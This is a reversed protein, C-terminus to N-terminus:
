KWAFIISVWGTDEYNKRKIIRGTCLKLLIFKDINGNETLKQLCEGNPNELSISATDATFSPSTLYPALEDSESDWPRCKSAPSGLSTVMDKWPGHGESAQLGSIGSFYINESTESLLLSTGAWSPQAAPTNRHVLPGARKNIGGDAQIPPGAAKNLRRMWNNVWICRSSLHLVLFRLLGDPQCM